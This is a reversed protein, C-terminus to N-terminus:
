TVIKGFVRSEFPPVEIMHKSRQPHFAHIFHHCTDDCDKTMKWWKSDETPIVDVYPELECLNTLYNEIRVNNDM